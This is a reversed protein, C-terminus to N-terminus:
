KCKPAKYRKIEYRAMPLCQPSDGSSLRKKAGYWHIKYPHKNSHYIGVIMGYLGNVGMNQQAKQGASSLTVLDGCQM